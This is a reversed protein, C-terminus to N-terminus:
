WSCTAAFMLCSEMFAVMLLCVSKQFCVPSSRVHDVNIVLPYSTMIIGILQSSDLYVKIVLPSQKHIFSENFYYSCDLIWHTGNSRRADESLKDDFLRQAAQFSYHSGLRLRITKLLEQQSRSTNNLLRQLFKCTGCATFMSGKKAIQM